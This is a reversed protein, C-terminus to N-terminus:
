AGTSSARVRLSVDGCLAHTQRWEYLRSARVGLEEALAVISAGREMRKIATPKLERSYRRNQGRFVM